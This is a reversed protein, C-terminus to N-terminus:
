GGLYWCELSEGEELYPMFEYQKFICQAETDFTNLRKVIASDTVTFMLFVLVYM